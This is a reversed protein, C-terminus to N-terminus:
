GIWAEILRPGREALASRLQDVFQAPTTARSATVGMGEALKIFDLAPRDLSFQDIAASAAPDTGTLRQFEIGLIAYSRNNFLITLVDLRERAQTWLAPLTYMASGDAQLSIVKRDPCAVAAGTAVPLGQGIAGGTLTLWDHPAAGASLGYAPGGGTNAEDVVIAGEPLLAAIAQGIALATLEGGQPVQPLPRTVTATATKGYGIRDALSAVPEACSADPPALVIREAQQPALRGGISPYAFFAVPDRAGVLLITDYGALEAAAQEPFYPLRKPEVRGGGREMRAFFTECYL